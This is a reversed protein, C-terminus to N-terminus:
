NQTILMLQCVCCTPVFVQDQSTGQGDGDLTVLSKKSYKQKCKSEYGPPLSIKSACAEEPSSCVDVRIVQKFRPDRDPVNIVFKWQSRDTLGAEPLIFMTRVACLPEEDRQRRSRHRNNPRSFLSSQSNASVVSRHRFYPRCPYSSEHRNISVVYRHRYYPHARSPAYGKGYGQNHGYYNWPPHTSKPNDDSMEDNHEHEDSDPPEDPLLSTNPEADGNREDFFVSTFNFRKAKTGAVVHFIYDGPYYSINQCVTRGTEPCYQPKPLFTTKSPSTKPYIYDSHYHDTSTHPHWPEVNQPYPLVQPPFGILGVLLVYIKTSM